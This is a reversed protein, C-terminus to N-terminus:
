SGALYGLLSGLLVCLVLGAFSLLFLLSSWIGRMAGRTRIFYYPFGFLSAGAIGFNLLWYRPFGRQRADVRYWVFYAFSIATGIALAIAAMAAPQTVLQAAAGDLEALLMVALFIKRKPQM